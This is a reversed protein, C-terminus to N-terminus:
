KNRMVFWGVGVAVAALMLPHVSLGAIEINSSTSTTTTPGPVDIVPEDATPTYLKDAIGADRIMVQAEEASYPRQMWVNVEEQNANRKYYKTYYERVDAETIARGLGRFRLPM